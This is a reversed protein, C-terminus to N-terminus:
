RKMACEPLWANERLFRELELGAVRHGRANWHGDHQFYPGGFFGQAGRLAPTLDLVPVGAADAAQRLRRLVAARGWSVEDLGYWVRTAELDRDSVEMRSPVYVIVLHSSRDRVEAALSKLVRETKLWGQDIEPTAERRYVFMEPPPWRARIPPWLGLRALANYTRPWQQVGDQVMEFLASGRPAPPPDASAPALPPSPQPVPFNHVKPPGDKFTLVPKPRGYYHTRLNHLVDNYYFFLAVVQPRYRTGEEKYLLFEQDTSYASVGANLVEARCDPGDLRSELVKSVVQELPVTYGEVFSDGLVLVRFVGPAPQYGRPSDRFGLDNIKITVEYERRQFTAEAGPKDRWGLLPDHVQYASFEDREKGGPRRSRVYRLSLELLGLTVLLSAAALLLNALLRRIRGKPTVVTV